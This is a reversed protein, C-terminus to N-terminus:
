TLKVIDSPRFLLVKRFEPTEFFIQQDAAWNMKQIADNTKCHLNSFNINIQAVAQCHQSIRGNNMRSIQIWVKTYVFDKRIRKTVNKFEFRYHTLEQSLMM